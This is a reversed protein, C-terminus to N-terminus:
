FGFSFIGPKGHEDRGVMSGWSPLMEKISAAMVDLVQSVEDPEVQSFDHVIIKPAEEDDAFMDEEEVAQPTLSREDTHGSEDEPLEVKENLTGYMSMDNAAAADRYAAITKELTTIRARLNQNEKNVLDKEHDIHAQQRELTEVREKSQIGFTKLQKRESKLKTIMTDSVVAGAQHEALSKTTEKAYKLLQQFNVFAVGKKAAEAEPVELLAEIPYLRGVSEAQQVAVFEQYETRVTDLENRVECLEEELADKQTNITEFERMSEACATRENVLATESESLAQQLFKKENQLQEIQHFLGKVDVDEGSIFKLSSSDMEGLEETLDCMTSRLISATKSPNMSMLLENSLKTLLKKLIIRQKYFAIKKSRIVAAKVKAKEYLGIDVAKVTYNLVKSRWTSFSNDWTLSITGSNPVELYGRVPREHSNYRQYAWVEIDNYTASFGINHHVTTFTWLLIQNFAVEM